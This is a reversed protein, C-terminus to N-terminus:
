RRIPRAELILTLGLNNVTAAALPGHASFENMWWGPPRVTLHVQRGAADRTTAPRCSISAVVWRRTVRAMEAIAVLARDAPLHELVDTSLVCGFARDRFPLRDATAVLARGDLGEVAADAIDIGYVRRDGRGRLYNMASGRGCGVDLISEPIDPLTTLLLELALRWAPGSDDYGQPRRYLANYTRRLEDM